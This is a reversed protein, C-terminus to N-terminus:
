NSSFNNEIFELINELSSRSETEPLGNLALRAKTLYSVAKEQSYGLAGSKTVIDLAQPFDERSIQKNELMKKLEEKRPSHELAYIIPLTMIGQRLDSGLTKGLKEQHGVLDLFDDSIQFAMGLNFGYEELDKSFTEPSESMMGGLYCSAALFSATKREVRKLYDAERQGVNYANIIQETEGSCIAVVAQAMTKPLYSKEQEALLLFARAFLCDGTLVAMMNGFHANVTSNGRRVQALDIVDDHILTAMHILEMAAAVPIFTASNYKPGFQGSLLFLVPRLYKGKSRLLHNYIKDLPGQEGELVQYIHEEVKNLEEKIIQSLLNKM